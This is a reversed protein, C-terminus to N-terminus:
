SLLHSIFADVSTNIISSPIRAEGRRLDELLCDVAAVFSDLSLPDFIYANRTIAHVYPLDPALLPKQLACAELLPLGLSEQLSTFLIAHVELSVIRLADSTMVGALEIVEEDLLNQVELIKPLTLIVRTSRQRLAPQASFILAHNKHPYYFAPYLLTFPEEPKSTYSHYVEVNECMPVGIVQIDVFPFRERLLEEVYSTQVYVKPRKLLILIKFLWTESRFRLNTKPQTLYLLNHFYVSQRGFWFLAPFNGMMVVHTARWRLAWLPVIIHEIVLRYLKNIIPIPYPIKALRGPCFAAPSGDQRFTIEHIDVGDRNLRDKIARYISFSGGKYLNFTSIVVSNARVYLPKTM